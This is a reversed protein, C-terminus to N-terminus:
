NKKVKTTTAVTVLPLDTIDSWESEDTGAVLGEITGVSSVRIAYVGYANALKEEDFVFTYPPSAITIM